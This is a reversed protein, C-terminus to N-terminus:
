MSIQFEINNVIYNLYNDSNNERLNTKLVNLLHDVEDQTLHLSVNEM